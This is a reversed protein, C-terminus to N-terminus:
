LPHVVVQGPPPPPTPTTRKFLILLRDHPIPILGVAEWGGAGLEAMEEDFIGEEDFGFTQSFYEYTTM